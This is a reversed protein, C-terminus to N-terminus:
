VAPAVEDVVVADDDDSNDHIGDPEYSVHPPVPLFSLRCSQQPGQSFM